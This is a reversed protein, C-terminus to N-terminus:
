TTASRQEDLKELATETRLLPNWQRRTFDIELWPDPNDSMCAKRFLCGGYATCADDYNYDWVGSEWCQIMRSVDRLLQKYWREIIFPPRYTLAQLTEYKTKLVSVGRILFGQIPVGAKASGWCYGSFQGRLDWQRPWTAGLQSTTKDDLGYRGGAFDVIADMRGCYIIPNGTEPHQIPLPEAFSFEIGKRDPSVQSPIATEEALPYRDLYYELAGMMRTLSKASDDPCEFDGYAEILAKMGMAAATEPALGSEFYARRVVELGKAYASGAHLHVNPTRPKYHLLHELYFKQPCSVFTSRLTADIVSPFPPREIASSKKTAYLKPDITM